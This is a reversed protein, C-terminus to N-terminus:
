RKRRTAKSTSGSQQWITPENISAASAEGSM